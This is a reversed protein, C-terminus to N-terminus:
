RACNGVFQATNAFCMIGGISTIVDFAPDPEFPFQRSLAIAEYDALAGPVEPPACTPAGCSPSPLFGGCRGWFSARGVPCTSGACLSTSASLKIVCCIRWCM